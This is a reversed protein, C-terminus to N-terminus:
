CTNRTKVKAQAVAVAAVVAVVLVDTYTQKIRMLLMETEIGQQGSHRDYPQKLEDCSTCTLPARTPAMASPIMWDSARLGALSLGRSTIKESIPFSTHM